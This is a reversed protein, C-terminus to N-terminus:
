DREKTLEDIKEKKWEVKLKCMEFQHSKRKEALQATPAMSVGSTGSISTEDLTGMEVRTNRKARTRVGKRNQDSTEM